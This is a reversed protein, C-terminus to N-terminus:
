LNGEFAVGCDIIRIEELPKGSLTGLNSINYLCDLSEQNTICGFVVFRNDLDPNERFTVQFLSGNSDPGRNCYSVCGAGTHRLLYNEDRFLGGHNYISRSCEGDQDLLDGAQFFTDKIVRHIKTGKYHYRVGDAGVGITGECLTLFNACAVPLLDRRLEIFLKGLLRPQTKTGDKLEKGGMAAIEFFVVPNTTRLGVGGKTDKAPPVYPLELLDFDHIRDIEDKKVEGTGRKKM